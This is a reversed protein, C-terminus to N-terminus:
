KVTCWKYYNLKESAPEKDVFFTSGFCIKAELFKQVRKCTSVITKIWQQIAHNPSSPPLDLFILVCSPVSFLCKTWHAFIGSFNVTKYKYFKLKLYYNTM